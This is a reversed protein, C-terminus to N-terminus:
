PKKVNYGETCRCQIVEKAPGSPDGPFLMKAGGVDYHEDMERTQGDVANHTDRTRKDRTAIWEKELPLDTQKAAFRNGANSASIVETRAIVTSRNPIIQELYLTDIRAALQPISEGEAEGEKILERIAEKTTDTVQVVKKAVNAAIWDQVAKDFVNFGDTDLPAKIELVAAECKLQNFLLQGFDEIVMLDVATLIKKWDTKFGNVVADANKGDKIAAVVARREKEFHAKVKKTVAKAYNERRKDIAKWYATKQEETTLNFAKAEDDAPEDDEVPEADPGVLLVNVPIMRVNGGEIEDYGVAVRGENITLLGAKVDERVRKAKEDTNEQLAEISDKDYDLYLNEGFKPTLGSNLKDRMKDLLPLITEQYFAQRAEQYNSYTAHEKDGVIEPPVGFAACIEVRSLKKSLIFDMDKPSLGMEKWELGGELLMFKGAKAAGAYNKTIEEKLRNYQPEPVFEKTVMAGSPRAGNTLLANNWTNAANDNDIGRAAVAIPSLGYLDDLASFLKMHMMRDVPFTVAKDNVTYTYGGVINIPHPNVKVRDPRMTWLEKPPGQNPGNMDVYSNGALLTFAAWAEFFEQKSQLTNPKYLLDILPHQEIETLKRRGQNYLLWDVGAAARAISMVCQYVWVNQEFGEKALKEFDRPTWAPQGSYISVILRAVQNAKSQLAPPIWDRLAM